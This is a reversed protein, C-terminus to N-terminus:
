LVPPVQQQSDYVPNYVLTGYGKIIEHRETNLPEDPIARLLADNRAAIGDRFEPHSMIFLDNRRIGNLVRVGVEDPSMFLDRDGSPRPARPPATDANRLEDPRTEGTTQALSTQVPGPFYVSAGVNSDKLETALTEMIGAVAFKSACYVGAGGVASFGATSSTTVFHGGEGHALVRPLLTVIGNVVGGLNVGLGFDWDRYSAAAMAGLVGVGANLAVVHINGFLREAEDAAAIWADRDTVDLIIARVDPSGGFGALAADLADQRVDTIIVKMGAALFAKAMGLGMGSAGGTIFATRGEVQQM